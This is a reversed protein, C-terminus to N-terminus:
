KYSKMLQEFTCVKLGKEKAKEIKTSLKGGEKYLLITTKASFKDVVGGLKQVQAEHAINRYSTFTVVEGNLPGANVKSKIAKEPVGITFYTAMVNLWRRFNLRNPMFKEITKDKFTPVSALMERAETAKDCKIFVRLPDKFGKWHNEFKSILELGVGPFLSSAVMLKAISVNGTLIRNMEQVLKSAGAKGMGYEIFVCTNESAKWIKLYDLVTKIGQDHLKAITKDKIGEIGLTVFFKQIREVTAEKSDNLAYFYKGRIEYPVDPLTLKKAKKVVGVVKPIVDGSRLVLITAGVGIGRSTMWEANHVTAHKVMVSGIKTPEFYVKPNIRKDGSTQYIVKDVVVPVASSLDNEKYAVAWTPKKANAFRMIAHPHCIVLGDADFVGMARMSKLQKSLELGEATISEPKGKRIDYPVVTFGLNKSLKLGPEMSLNYIGLVYLNIDKFAPHASGELQRNFLGNVMGRPDNFEDKTRKDKGTHQWKKKFLANPMVAELRIVLEQKAKIKQPLKVYPLLYSIDQGLTGDGRTVLRFPTGNRYTVQLSTGDIKAMILAEGHDPSYKILNKVLWPDIKEPYKKNLSPMFHTHKVEQKKNIVRVGTKKLEPWKPDKTKIFDELDDFAADTLISKNSNYYAEKADLYLQKAEAIKM